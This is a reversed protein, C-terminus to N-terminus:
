KKTAKEIERRALEKLVADRIFVSTLEGGNLVKAIRDNTGKPLRLNTVEILRGPM